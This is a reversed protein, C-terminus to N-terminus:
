GPYAGGLAAPPSENVQKKMLKAETQIVAL